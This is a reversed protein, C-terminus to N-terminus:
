TRGRRRIRRVVSELALDFAETAAPSRGATRARFFAELRDAPAVHHDDWWFPHILLQIVDAPPETVAPLPDGHRWSGASDALYCRMLPAAYANVLGCLRAEGALLAVLREPPRHFSVARVTEGLVEELRRRDPALLAEVDGVTLAPDAGREALDLHLGVEHGLARLRHLVERSTAEELDYLPSDVMVLFTARVGIDAEVEAMALARELSLDIDHRVHLTSRGPAPGDALLRVACTAQATSLLRRVYAFSFDGAWAPAAAPQAAPRM